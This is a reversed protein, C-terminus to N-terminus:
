AADSLGIVGESAKIFDALPDERNMAWVKLQGIIEEKGANPRLKLFDCDKFTFKKERAHGGAANVWEPIEIAPPPPSAEQEDSGQEDPDNGTEILFTQRLSMKSAGTAAKYAGKDGMDTGDGVAEVDIFTGSPAHVFRYTYEAVTSNAPSGNKTQFVTRQVNRVGFPYVIIGAAIMHPRLAQIFAAEGAFKYGGGPGGMTGDKQVYGIKEYVELIATHINKESM